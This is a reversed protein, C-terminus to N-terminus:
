LDPVCLILLVCVSCGNPSLRIYSVHGSDCLFKIASAPNSELEGHLGQVAKVVLAVKQKRYKDGQNAVWLLLHLSTCHVGGSRSHLETLERFSM